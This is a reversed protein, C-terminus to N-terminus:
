IVEGIESQHMLNSYQFKGYVVEDDTPLGGFGARYAYKLATPNGNMKMWSKSWLRDAWDEIRFHAGEVIGSSPDEYKPHIVVTKGALPHPQPHIAHKSTDADSM